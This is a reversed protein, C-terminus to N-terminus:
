RARAQAASWAFCVTAVSELIWGWYEDYFRVHFREDVHSLTSARVVVFLVLLLIGALILPHENVFRRWKRLCAALAAFVTLTFLMVFVAQALRRYQDWGEARASARGAHILLSQLDLKKNIGLLLLVAALLSWPAQNNPRRDGDQHSVIGARACFLAGVVYVGAVTWGVPTLEGNVGHQAFVIALHSFV